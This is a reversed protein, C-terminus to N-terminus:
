LIDKDYRVKYGLNTEVLKELELTEIDIKAIFGDHILLLIDEKYTQYMLELIQSELSFYISTVVSKLNRQKLKEDETKDFLEINGNPMKIIKEGKNIFEHQIHKEYYKFLNEIDNTLNKFEEVENLLLEREKRPLKIKSFSSTVDGGYLCATITEKIEKYKKKYDNQNKALKEACLKRIPERDKIYKALYELHVEEKSVKKLYQYLLTPAGAQIDYDYNGQFIIKRLKSSVMQFNFGNNIDSKSFIRFNSIQYLIYNDNDKYYRILYLIKFIDGINSGNKISEILFNKLKTSDIEVKTHIKYKNLIYTTNNKSLKFRTEKKINFTYNNDKSYELDDKERKTFGYYREASKKSSLKVNANTYIKRFTHKNKLLNNNNMNQVIEPNNNSDDEYIFDEKNLYIFDKFKIGEVYKNIKVDLKNIKYVDFLLDFKDEEIIEQLYNMLIRSISERLQYTRVLKNNKDYNKEYFLYNLLKSISENYVYKNKKTKQSLTFEISDKYLSKKLNDDIILLLNLIAKWKLKYANSGEKMQVQMMPIHEIMFLLVCGNDLNVWKEEGKGKIAGKHQRM